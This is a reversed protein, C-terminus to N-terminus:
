QLHWRVRGTRRDPLPAARPSLAGNLGRDDAVILGVNGLDLDDVCAQAPEVGASDSLVIFFAQVFSAETAWAVFRRHLAEQDIKGPVLFSDFAVPGGRLLFDPKCYPHYPVPDLIASEGYRRKLWVGVQSRFRGAALKGAAKPAARGRRTQEYLSLLQGYAPWKAGKLLAEVPKRDAEWLRGLIEGHSFPLNLLRDTYKPWFEAIENLLALARSMRRLHNVSYGSVAELARIWPQGDPSLPGSAELHLLAEAVHRWPLGNSRANALDNLTNM